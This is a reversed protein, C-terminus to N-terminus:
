AGPLPPHPRSWIQVSKPPFKFFFFLAPVLCIEVSALPRRLDAEAHRLGPVVKVCCFLLDFYCQPFETTTWGKSSLCEPDSFFRFAADLRFWWLVSWSCDVFDLHSNIYRAGFRRKQTPGRQPTVVHPTDTHRVPAHASALLIFWANPGQFLLYLFIQLTYLLALGELVIFWSLFFISHTYTWFYDEPRSRCDAFIEMNPLLPSPTFFDKISFFPM